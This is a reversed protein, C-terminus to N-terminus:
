IVVVVELETPLLKGFVRTVSKGSFGELSDEWLRHLLEFKLFLHPESVENPEYDTHLVLCRLLAKLVPELYHVQVAVSHNSSVLQLVEVLLLTLTQVVHLAVEIKIKLVDDALHDIDEFWVGADLESEIVEELALIVAWDEDVHERVEILQYGELLAVGVFILFGLHIVRVPSVPVAEHLWFISSNLTSLLIVLSSFNEVPFM